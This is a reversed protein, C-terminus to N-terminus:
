RELLLGRHNLLGLEESHVGASGPVQVRPLHASPALTSDVLNSEFQFQREQQHDRYIKDVCIV